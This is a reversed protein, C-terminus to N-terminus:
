RTKYFTLRGHAREVNVTGPLNLPGQGHWDTLLRDIGLIHERNLDNVACGAEIALLRLVRTRLANPLQALLDVEDGAKALAELALQDLLDADDRVMDATRALAQSIGPGLERELLPLISHRVRVRSFELSENHPDEYVQIDSVVSRVIERSLKLFPRRYLGDIVRMGALSRAGSGRALGLLVTEAQDDLTHGLLIAIANHKSAAAELACRRATRAAAELGGSGPGVSVNVPIVQAFEVGFNECTIKAQQAVVASNEQLQHDVIVAAIRISNETAVLVAARVLALSDGGGSCAVLVLDGSAVDHLATRMAQRVDLNLLFSESVDAM